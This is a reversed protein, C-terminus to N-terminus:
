WATWGGDVILNTGNVFSSAHSALFLVAGSIEDPRGIRGMPVKACLREIFAPEHTQVENSPFPGPSISNVRIGERGFECAAYRSWHVLGAKAAGYFPPNVIYSTAYIRADPSVVAYMSAINIISAYGEMAVAARLLPLARQVVNHAAVVSVEYSARYSTADASAIPGAGGLYANNVVVNLAQGARRDFFSRVATEDTVDFVACEASHGESNLREVLIDVREKSRGNVFVHAGAQALAASISAGLHGTAGTVLARMGSLSFMELGRRM